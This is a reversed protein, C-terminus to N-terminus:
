EQSFIQVGRSFHATDTIIDYFTLINAYYVYMHVYLIFVYGYYVSDKGRQCENWLKSSLNTDWSSNAEDESDDSYPVNLVLKRPVVAVNSLDSSSRSTFQLGRGMSNFLEHKINNVKAGASANSTFWEEFDAVGDLLSNQLTTTSSSSLCTTSSTRPPLVRSSGGVSSTTFGYAGHLCSILLLQSTIRSM